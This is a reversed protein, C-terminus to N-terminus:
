WAEVVQPTTPALPVGNCGFVVMAGHWGYCTGLGVTRGATGRASCSELLCCCSCCACIICVVRDIWGGGHWRWTMIHPLCIPGRKARCGGLCRGQHNSKQACAPQRLHGARARM